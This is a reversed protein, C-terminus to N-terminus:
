CSLRSGLPVKPGCSSAHAHDIKIRKDVGICFSWSSTVVKAREGCRCQRGILMTNDCPSHANNRQGKAMRKGRGPFLTQFHGRNQCVQECGTRFTQSVMHLSLGDNTVNSLITWISYFEQCLSTLQLVVECKCLLFVSETQRCTVPTWPKQPVHLNWLRFWPFPIYFGSSIQGLLQQQQPLIWNSVAPFLSWPIINESGM